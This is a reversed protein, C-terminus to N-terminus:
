ILLWLRPRQRPDSHPIFFPSYRARHLQPESRGSRKESPDRPHAGLGAGGRLVRRGRSCRSAAECPGGGAGATSFPSFGRKM